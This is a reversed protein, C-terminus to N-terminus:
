KQNNVNEPYRDKEPTTRLKPPKRKTGTPLREKEPTGREKATTKPSSSTGTTTAQPEPVTVPKKLAAVYAAVGRTPAMFTHRNQSHIFLSVIVFKPM